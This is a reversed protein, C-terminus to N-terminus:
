PAMARAAAANAAAPGNGYQLAVAAGAFYQLINHLERAITPAMVLFTALSLLKAMDEIKAYPWVEIIAKRFDGFM